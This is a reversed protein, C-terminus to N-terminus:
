EDGASWGQSEIIGGVEGWSCPDGEHCHNFDFVDALPVAVELDELIARDLDLLAFDDNNAARGTGAFGREDLGDVCEFGELLALDDDIADGHAVRLRVQGLQAATDAHNELVEFEKRVERDAFVEHESLHLHEAAVAFFGGFATQLQEIADAKELVGVLEGALEGAALLLAHGDGAREGHIRDAHEKVFRGRSKIRLKCPFNKLSDFLQGIIM